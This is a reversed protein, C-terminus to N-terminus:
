PNVDVSMQTYKRLVSEAQAALKGTKALARNAMVLQDVEYPVECLIIQKLLLDLKCLDSESICTRVEVYPSEKTDTM